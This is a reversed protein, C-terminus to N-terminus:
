TWGNDALVVEGRWTSDRRILPLSAFAINREWEVIMAPTLLLAVVEERNTNISSAICFYPCCRGMRGYERGEQNSTDSERL